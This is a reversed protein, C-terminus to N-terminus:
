LAVAVVKSRLRRRCAVRDLTALDSFDLKTSVKALFAVFLLAEVVDGKEDGGGDELCRRDITVGGVALTKDGEEEVIELRVEALPVFSVILWTKYPLRWDFSVVCNSLVGARVVDFRPRRRRSTGSIRSSLTSSVMTM